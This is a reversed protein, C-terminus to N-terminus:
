SLRSETAVPCTAEIIMENRFAFRMGMAIDAGSTAGVALLERLRGPIDSNEAVADILRILVDGFYGEQALRLYRASVDTTVSFDRITFPAPLGAARYVALVGTCADDFSPTLGCGLGIYAPADATCLAKLARERRPRPIGDLGCRLDETQRLFAEIGKWHGRRIIRGTWAPDQRFPHDGDPLFLTNRTLEARIGPELGALADSLVCISDPVAPCSVATLTLMRPGSPLEMLLNATRAFVSHVKGACPASFAGTLRATLVDPNM